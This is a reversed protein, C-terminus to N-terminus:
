KVQPRISLCSTNSSHTFNTSTSHTSSIVNLSSSVLSASRLNLNNAQLPEIKYNFLTSSNNTVDDGASLNVVRHVSNNAISM